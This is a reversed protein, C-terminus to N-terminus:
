DVNDSERKRDEEKEWHRVMIERVIMFCAGFLIAATTLIDKLPQQSFREALNQVLALATATM